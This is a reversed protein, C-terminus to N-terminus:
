GVDCHGPVLTQLECMVNLDGKLIAAGGDHNQILGHVM